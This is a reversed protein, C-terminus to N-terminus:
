VNKLYPRLIVVKELLDKMLQAIQKSLLFTVQHCLTLLLNAAIESDLPLKAKEKLEGLASLNGLSSLYFARKRFADIRQDDKRWISLHNQRLFDEYDALLEEFSGM